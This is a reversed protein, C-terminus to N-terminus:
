KESSSFRHIKYVLLTSYKFINWSSGAIELKSKDKEVLWMNDWYKEVSMLAAM